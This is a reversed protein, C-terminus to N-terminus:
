DAVARLLMERFHDNKTKADQEPSYLRYGIPYIEGEQGTRHLQNLVGIGRVLSAAAGSYQLKVLEIPRSYRKDQVSDDFIQYCQASDQLLPAVVDWLRRPTLKERRLFDSIADPSVSAEGELHDAPQHLHLQWAKCDSVRHVAARDYVETEAQVEEGALSLRLQTSSSSAYLVVM